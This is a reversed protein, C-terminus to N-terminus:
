NIINENVWPIMAAIYILRFFIQFMSRATLLTVPSIVDYCNGTAVAISIETTFHKVIRHGITYRVPVNISSLTVHTKLTPSTDSPM